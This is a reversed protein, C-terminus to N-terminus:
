EDTGTSQKMAAPPVAADPQPAPAPQSAAAPQSTPIDELVDALSRRLREATWHSVKYIWKGHQENFENAKDAASLVASKKELQEKAEQEGIHQSQTIQAQSPGLCTIRVYNNDGKVGSRVTYTLYNKTQCTYSVDFAINTSELSDGAMVDEFPLSALGDMTTEGVGARTQKGSPLPTVDVPANGKGPALTYAGDKTQITVTEVDAKPVSVLNSNVYQIFDASINPRDQTTYVADQGELRVYQTGGTPGDKGVIVTVLPKEGASGAAPATAAPNAAAASAQAPQSAPSDGQGSVPQFGTGGSGQGSVPQFGTGGSGEGSVPQFGTGGSGASGYVRVVLADPSAAAVGLEAHNAPDATVRGGARIDLLAILLKNVSETTAPYNSHDALVFQKGQRALSLKKDGKSVVIRAVKEVDLGQVLPTGTAFDSEGAPRRAYLIITLAALVAAVMVLVYLKRDTLIM